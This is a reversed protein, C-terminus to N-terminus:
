QTLSPSRFRNPLLELDTDPRPRISDPGATTPICQCKSKQIHNGDANHRHNHTHNHDHNHGLNLTHIHTKTRVGNPALKCPPRVSIIHVAKVMIHTALASAGIVKEEHDHEHVHCTIGRRRPATYYVTEAEASIPTCTGAADKSVIWSIDHLLDLM